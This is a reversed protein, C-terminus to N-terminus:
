LHQLQEPQALDLDGLVVDQAAGGEPKDGLERALRSQVFTRNGGIRQHSVIEAPDPGASVGPEGGM